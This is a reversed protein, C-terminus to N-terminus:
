IGIWAANVNQHAWFGFPKQIVAILKKKSESLLITLWSYSKIALYIFLVVVQINFDLIVPPLRYYCYLIVDNLNIICDISQMLFYM